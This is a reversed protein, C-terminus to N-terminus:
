KPLLEIELAIRKESDQCVNPIKNRSGSGIQRSYNVEIMRAWVIFQCWEKVFKPLLKRGQNV